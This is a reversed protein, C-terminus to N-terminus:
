SVVVNYEPSKRREEREVLLAEGARQLREQLVKMRQARRREGKSPAMERPMTRQQESLWGKRSRLEGLNWKEWLEQKM